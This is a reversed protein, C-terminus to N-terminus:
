FYCAWCHLLSTLVHGAGQEASLGPTASPLPATAPLLSPCPPAPTPPQAYAAPQIAVSPQAPIAPISPQAPASALWPQAGTGGFVAICRAPLPPVDATGSGSPAPFGAVIVTASPPTSHINLKFLQASVGPQAPTRPAEASTMGQRTREARQENKEQSGACRM